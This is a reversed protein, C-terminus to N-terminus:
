SSVEVVSLLLPVFFDFLYLLYDRLFCDAHLSDPEFRLLGVILGAVLGVLGVLFLFSVGVLFSGLPEEFVDDMM